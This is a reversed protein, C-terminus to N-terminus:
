NLLLAFLAFSMGNTQQRSENERQPPAMPPAVAWLGGCSFFALLGIGNGDHRWGGCCIFVILEEWELSFFQTTKEKNIAHRM